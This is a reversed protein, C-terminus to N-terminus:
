AHVNAAESQAAFLRMFHEGRAEFNPYQDFSACAPSLLVCAGEVAKEADARADSLAQAFAKDMTGAMVTQVGWMALTQQFLPAAEGILYARRIHPAYARLSEIGGDKAVGGAIWYIHHYNRLAKEAADANTAKSDNVCSVGGVEGLWQMRHALGSFQQMAAYITEPAIDQLVCAAYAAAANQWNHEGQLAKIASVDFRKEQHARADVLVGNEVYVGGECRMRGSIAITRVDSRARMTEYLGRADDDDVGIIAVDGAQQHAFIRAKAQIYGAMSGHRDLHDPSFNLLVATHVRTHNCLDLQYSSLEFVAVGGEDMAPLAMVPTGLNGGVVAQRKAYALIHGILTTTTSKGNTGTIGIMPTHPHADCWLEIDSTIAVGHTRAMTVSRHPLPFHLPVGPSLIMADVEHWPWEELPILPVDAVSAAFAARSPAGDDWAIVRHGQATLARATAQGTKGLGVMGYNRTIGAHM